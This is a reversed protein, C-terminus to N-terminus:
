FWAYVWHGVIWVLTGTLLLLLLSLEADILLDPLRRMRGLLAHRSFVM